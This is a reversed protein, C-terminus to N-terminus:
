LKLYQIIQSKKKDLCEPRCSNLLYGGNTGGEPGLEIIYNCISLLAPDHEIVIVSNGNEILEYLLTVLKEIDYYSLGTTPEDLVYLFNGKRNKSLERSLKIRQSEGGSLTPLPQGLKIYDLGTKELIKLPETIKIYDSFFHISESVTMDLVESINKNKFTVELVEKHYRLGKCDKCTSSLNIGGIWEYIMGSGFCTQCAGKSNFSFESPTYEKQKAIPTESFLKRIKDWLKIYTVIISNKHKSISKQTVEIFGSLNEAGSFDNNTITNLFYGELRPILTGSILSSKGSGSVGAVGILKNLPIEININKLNNTTCNKLKLFDSNENRNIKTFKTNLYKATISESSTTLQSYNGSFIIEGGNVGANPGFELIHEAKKLSNFDHEIVIISNDNEKLDLIKSIIKEKEIEHLGMTPEDFIYILSSLKSEIYAMLYLRQLEGGSLTPLERYLSLYGLGVDIIKEIKQLIVKLLALSNESLLDERWNSLVKKLQNVTLLSLDGISLNNITIELIYKNLRKGLCKPCIKEMISQKPSKKEAVRKPLISLLSLRSTEKRNPLKGKIIFNKVEIPIDKFLTTAKIGFNKEINEIRKKLASEVNANHLVSSLTATDIDDILYNWNIESVIGRGLCEPCMGTPSNFLFEGSELNEYEQFSRAKAEYKFLLALQNLLKTKTGVVSRPNNNATTNQQVAVTPTIGEISDVYDPQGISSLLGISELYEKKGYEFITDFILSSKGSGSVGTAVVFNNKPITLTINKLNHIHANIIKINNRNM